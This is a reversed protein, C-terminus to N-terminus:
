LLFIKGLKCITRSRFLLGAALNEPTVRFTKLLEFCVKSDKGLIRATKALAAQQSQWRLKSAKYSAGRLSSLGIKLLPNDEGAYLIIRKPIDTSGVTFSM